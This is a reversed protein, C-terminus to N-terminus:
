KVTWQVKGIEKRRDTGRVQNENRPSIMYGEM